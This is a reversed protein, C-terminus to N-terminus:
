TTYWTINYAQLKGPSAGYQYYMLVGDGPQFKLRRLMNTEYGMVDGLCNVCDVTNSRNKSEDDDNASCIAFMAALLLDKRPTKESICYFAYAICLM